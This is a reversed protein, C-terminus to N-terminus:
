YGAVGFLNVILKQLLLQLATSLELIPTEPAIM